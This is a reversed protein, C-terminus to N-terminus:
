VFRLPPARPPGFSPLAPKPLRRPRDAAPGARVQVPGIGAAGFSVVAPSDISTDITPRAASARVLARPASALRLSVHAGPAQVFRGRGDNRWLRLEGRASLALLDRDGDRDIDVLVVPGASKSSTLAAARSPQPTHTRVSHPHLSAPTGLRHDALAGGSPAAPTAGHARDVMSAAGSWVAATLVLAVLTRSVRPM